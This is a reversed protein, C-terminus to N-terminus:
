PNERLINLLSVEPRTWGPGGIFRGIEEGNRYVIATPLETVGLRDVEADGWPNDDGLGYYTFRVPSDQLEEHVKLGRPMFRECVHCWSGFVVRVEIGAGLAAAEAVAAPDSEYSSADRRYGPEHTYLDTLTAEGAWSPRQRLQALVGDVAFELGKPIPRFPMPPGFLAGPLLDLTDEGAPSIKLLQVKRTMQNRASLLVPSPLGDAVVLFAGATRSLYLQADPAEQGQLFLQYDGVLQFGRLDDQAIAAGSITLCAVMALVSSRRAAPLKM